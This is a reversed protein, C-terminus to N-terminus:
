PTPSSGVNSIVENFGVAALGGVAGTLVAQLLTEALTNVLIVNAIISIVIGVVLAIVAGFRSKNAESIAATRFAVACIIFTVATIGGVTLLQDSTINEIPM